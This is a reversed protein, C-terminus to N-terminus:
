NSFVFLAGGEPTRTMSKGVDGLFPPLSVTRGVVVAVYQKGGATFTSPAASIGSGANFKWLVEGTTANIARFWGDINGSFVLNGGTALVGSLWPASEKIGWRKEQKIPDWAILEGLYGGPGPKAPFEKGLYFSGRKYEVETDTIDMCINNSPIYVLGTDKSFAMPQWNKGGVLNPCVNEAKFDMRPRKAPDEVPLATKLDISKAWNTPVFTKASILKGDERNAVYFFGNRDAKMLVPTDAGGIKLDALVAENVGDYDWADHPTTQLHWKIKGTKTDLGLTSATYLNTMKGYESTGTGRVAANWPSPNSTGMIITDTKADYSVILWAAGGGQKWSDGKWSDNGPEGKGPVTWTEWVKKGTKSDLAVISGRAGYEGGGYGTVVLNKIVLPPSTIVSGQKYDVVETDWIEEGSKADLAVLHGDLRGVYIRGDGFSVGRNVVDCCGYQLLDSPLDPEYKWKQVGTASNVAFVSKPGWSSSVYLTDGIVLPTSENSRLSGLQVSYSVKLGKVNEATIENLPSYRTNAYDYGNMAWNGPESAVKLLSDNAAAPTGTMFYAGAGAVGVALALGLIRYNRPM